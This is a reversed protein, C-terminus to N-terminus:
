GGVVQIKAPFKNSLEIFSNIIHLDSLNLKETPLQFPFSVELSGKFKPIDIGFKAFFSKYEDSSFVADNEQSLVDAPIGLAPEISDKNIEQTNTTEQSM